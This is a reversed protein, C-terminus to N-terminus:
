KGKIFESIGGLFEVCSQDDMKKLTFGHEEEEFMVVKVDRGSNKLVECYQLQKDKLIDRGAIVFFMPPIPFTVDTGERVPNCFPHDRNSGLPLALRWLTDSVEVGQNGNGSRVGVHGCSACHERRRKEGMLFIKSLDAHSHLWPDGVAGGTKMGQLWQLAAISDHYAAPLRHEPTLRYNVSVIIVDLKAAWLQCMCHIIPNAPTLFCFGGGHFYLLVPLLRTNTKTQPPLYLRAWLGVEEDFVVDKYSVNKVYNNEESLTVPWSPEPERIVSGDSYLKVVGEFDEVLQTECNHAM